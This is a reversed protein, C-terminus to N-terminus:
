EDDPALRPRAAPESGSPLGHKSRLGDEGAHALVAPEIWGLRRDGDLSAQGDAAHRPMDLAYDPEAQDAFVTKQDALWPRLSPSWGEADLLSGIGVLQQKGDAVDNALSPHGSVTKPGPLDGAVSPCSCRFAKLACATTQATANCGVPAASRTKRRPPPM